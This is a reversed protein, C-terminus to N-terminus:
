SSQPNEVIKEADLLTMVPLVMLPHQMGPRDRIGFNLRAYFATTRDNLSNLAVGYIAVNRVVNACRRLASIMLGTGMKQDQCESRVAIYDLYIFPIYGDRTFLDAGSGFGKASIGTMSLSYFGIAAHNGDEMACFTRARHTENLHWCTSAWRDISPDGCHFEDLAGRDPLPVIRVKDLNLARRATTM